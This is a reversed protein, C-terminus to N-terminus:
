IEGYKYYYPGLITANTGGFVVLCGLVFLLLLLLEWPIWFERGPLLPSRLCVYGDRLRCRRVARVLGFLLLSASDTHLAPPPVRMSSIEEPPRFGAGRAFGKGGRWRLKRPLPATVRIAGEVGGM